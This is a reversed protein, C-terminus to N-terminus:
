KSYEEALKFQAMLAKRHERDTTVLYNALHTEYNSTNTKAERGPPSAYPYRPKLGDNLAQGEM